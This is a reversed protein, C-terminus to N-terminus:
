DIFTFEIGAERGKAIIFAEKEALTTFIPVRPALPDTDHVGDNAQTLQQSVPSQCSGKISDAKILLRLSSPIEYYINHIYCMGRLEFDPVGASRAAFGLCCRNGHDDLLVSAYVRDLTNGNWEKRVVTVQLMDSM